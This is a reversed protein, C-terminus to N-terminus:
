SRIWTGPTTGFHRRAANTLHAQDCFGAAIAAESPRLREKTILRQARDLRWRLILRHPPEGFTAGFARAFHAESIGAEAALDAVSIRNELNGHMYELVRRAQATSLRVKSAMPKIRARGYGQLLRLALTRGLMEGYLQETPTTLEALIRHVLDLLIHDLANRCPRLMESPLPACGDLLRALLNPAVAILAVDCRGWRARNMTGHPLVDTAGPAFIMERMKGGEHCARLTPAGVNVLLRHGLITHEPWERPRSSIREVIVEGSWGTAVSSHLVCAAPILPIARRNVRYLISSAPM